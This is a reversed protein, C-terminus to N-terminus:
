IERVIYYGETWASILIRVPAPIESYISFCEPLNKSEITCTNPKFSVCNNRDSCIKPLPAKKLCGKPDRLGIKMLPTCDGMYARELIDLPVADIFKAWVSDSISIFEGWSGNIESSVIKAVKTDGWSPDKIQAFILGDRRYM